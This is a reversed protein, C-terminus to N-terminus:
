QKIMVYDDKYSLVEIEGYLKSLNDRIHERTDRRPDIEGYIRGDKLLLIRDCWKLALNPDHMTILGARENERVLERVLKLVHHCNVFDLSSSPEDLLMVPSDQAIARALIVLQKQGESLKDFDFEEMDRLGVRVLAERAIRRECKGPSSFIGLYPNFGMLVADLLTTGVIASHRQPIYCILRAIGREDLTLYSTGNVSCSGSRIPLLGSISKLLTTKGSGNLGLLAAFQGKSIDFGIGKLIEHKGYSVHLDTVQLMSM